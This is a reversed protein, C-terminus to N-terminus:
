AAECMQLSVRIKGRRVYQKGVQRFGMAAHFKLSADNYVPEIDVEATVRPVNNAKAQAFVKEYLKRGLGLGRYPADIVIRDVYLFAPYKKSFWKYNESQYDAGERFVIMFAAPKGDVEVIDFSESNAAFYALKEEDMPALVEVNEENLRLVFPFDKEELPRIKVQKEM